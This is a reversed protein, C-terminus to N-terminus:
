SENVECKNFLILWESFDDDDDDDDTQSTFFPTLYNKDLATFSTTSCWWFFFFLILLQKCSSKYAFPFVFCIGKTFSNSNWEWDEGLHHVKMMLQLCTVMTTKMIRLITSYLFSAVESINFALFYCSLLLAFYGFICMFAHFWIHIFIVLSESLVSFFFWIKV